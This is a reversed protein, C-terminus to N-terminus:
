RKFMKDPLGLPNFGSLAGLGGSSRAWEEGGQSKLNFHELLEREQGISNKQDCVFELLRAMMEVVKDSTEGDLERPAEGAMLAGLMEYIAAYDVKGGEPHREGKAVSEMLVPLGASADSSFSGGELLDIWTEIPADRM